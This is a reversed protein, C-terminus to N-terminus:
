IENESMGKTFSEGYKNYILQLIILLQTNTSLVKHMKTWPRCLGPTTTWIGLLMTNGTNCNFRGWLMGDITAWFSSSLSMLNRSTYYLQINEDLLKTTLSM